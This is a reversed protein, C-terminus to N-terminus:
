KPMACSDVSPNPITCYCKRLGDSEIRSVCAAGNQGENCSGECTAGDHSGDGPDWGGIVQKLKERSLVETAGLELMRLRLKKM